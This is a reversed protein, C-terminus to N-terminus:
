HGFCLRSRGPIGSLMGTGRGATICSEPSAPTFGHQARVCSGRALFQVACPRLVLPRTGSGTNM